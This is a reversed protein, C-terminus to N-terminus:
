PPGPEILFPDDGQPEVTVRVWGVRPSGYVEVRKLNVSPLPRSMRQLHTDGHVLLVPKALRAAGQEIRAMLARFGSGWRLSEFGPNAQMALVLARVDAARALALSEELWAANAAARADHEADMQKTRGLNDNSGVVHLSVFLVDSHRWRVNERYEAFRGDAGQRELAIRRRGLSDGDAAFVGRWLRLQQLPDGGARHCDTWDNDGPLLVLPWPSRDLLERRQRLLGESCPSSGSKIDGVHIVFALPERELDQLLWALDREEVESYPTDGMAAFSFREAAAAPLQLLLAALLALLRRM